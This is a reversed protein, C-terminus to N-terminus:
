QCTDVKILPAPLEESSILVHRSDTDFCVAEAQELRPLTLMKSTRQLMAKWSQSSNLTYLFLHRYTLVAIKAGDPSIDMSTPQAHFRDHRTRIEEPKPQPISHVLGVPKATLIATGPPKLPLTYFQAPVDRKTLLLVTQTSVDVSVAECDRPGDQFQFAMSWAVRVSKDKNIDPMPVIYLTLHNRIANNDGTDAILLYSNGDIVFAAVDEWDRNEAGNVVLNKIYAGSRSVAHLEPRNGSDNIVWLINQQPSLAIGSIEDVHGSTISGTKQFDCTDSVSQLDEDSACFICLAALILFLLTRM